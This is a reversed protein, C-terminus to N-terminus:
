IISGTFCINVITGQLIYKLYGLIRVPLYHWSLTFRQQDSKKYDGKYGTIYYLEPIDM